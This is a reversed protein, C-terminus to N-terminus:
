AIPAIKSLIIIGVTFAIMLAVFVSPKLKIGEDSEEYYRILGAASFMGPTERRRKGKRSM